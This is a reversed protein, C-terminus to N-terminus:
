FSGTRHLGRSQNSDRGRGRIHIEKPSKDEILCKKRFLLELIDDIKSEVTLLHSKLDIESSSKIFEKIIKRKKTEKNKLLILFAKEGEHETQFIYATEGIVDNCQQPLRVLPYVTNPQPHLKSIKSKGIYLV